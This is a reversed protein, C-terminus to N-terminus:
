PTQNLSKARSVAASFSTALYLDWSTKKLRLREAEDKVVGAEVLKPDSGFVLGTLDAREEELSAGLSGLAISPDVGDAYKVPDVIGSGHGIVEHLLTQILTGTEYLDMMDKVRDRTTFAMVVQERMAKAEPDANQGPFPLRIVNKFGDTKRIDEFNPLNFGGTRISSVEEFYYGMIAPPSYDPAFTKRYAKKEGEVMYEYPMLNEFYQANKALAASKKTVERDVLLVYNEWSGIRNLFDDYTEVWGIMVDLTSDTRDKLWEINFARFDKEDGTHLYKIFHDIQAKQHESKSHSKAKILHSEVLRLKEGIIGPTKM